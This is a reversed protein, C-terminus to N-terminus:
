GLSPMQLPEGLSANRRGGAAGPSYDLNRDGASNRLLGCGDQLSCAGTTDLLIALHDPRYNIAVGQYARGNVVGTGQAVDVYVGTSVELMRREVIAAVIRPDVANAREIDIWAEAVLRGNDIRANFVTGVRQNSYAQPDNASSIGHLYVHDRVIPRGNWLHVTKATESPPYLTAGGSGHMVMGHTKDGAIMVVPVVYHKRGELERIMDRHNSPLTPKRQPAKRLANLNGVIVTTRPLLVPMALPSGLPNPAAYNQIFTPM